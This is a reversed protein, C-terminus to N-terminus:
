RWLRSFVKALGTPKAQSDASRQEMPKVPRKEPKPQQANRLRTFVAQLKNHESHKDPRAQPATDSPSEPLPPNLSEAGPASASHTTIKPTAPEESANFGLVESLSPKTSAKGTNANTSSNVSVGTGTFPKAVPPHSKKGSVVDAVDSSDQRNESPQSESPTRSKASSTAIIESQAAAQLENLLPWRAKAEAEARDDVHESSKNQYRSADLGLTDFLTKVDRGSNDVDKQTM